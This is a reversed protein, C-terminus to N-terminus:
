RVRRRRVAASAITDNFAYAGREACLHLQRRWDFRIRTHQVTLRRQVFYLKHIAAVGQGGRWFFYFLWSREHFGKAAAGGSIGRTKKDGVRTDRVHTLGLRNLLASVAADRKTRSTGAPMRMKASMSLTEEVTLQSYFM